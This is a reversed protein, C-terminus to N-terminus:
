LVIRPALLCTSPTRTSRARRTAISISTTSVWGLVWGRFPVVEPKFGFSADLQLRNPDGKSVPRRRSFLPVLVHSPTACTSYWTSADPLCISAVHVRATRRLAHVPLMLRTHFRPPSVEGKSVIQSHCVTRPFHYVIRRIVHAFPPRSALMSEM